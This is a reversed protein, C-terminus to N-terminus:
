GARGQLRVLRGDSLLVFDAGGVARVNNIGNRGVGGPVKERLQQLAAQAAARNAEWAPHDLHMGAQEQLGEADAIGTDGEEDVDSDEAPDADEGPDSDEAPDDDEFEDSLGHLRAQSGEAGWGLQLDGEGYDLERDDTGGFSSSLQGGGNAPWGLMPEDDGEELDPDGDLQDLIVLMRELSSEIDKRIERLRQREDSDVAPRELVDEM